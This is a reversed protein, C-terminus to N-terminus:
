PQLVRHRRRNTVDVGGDLYCSSAIKQNGYCPAITRRPRPPTLIEEVREPSMEDEDDVTEILEYNAELKDMQTSSLTVFPCEAALVARFGASAPANALIHKPMRDDM